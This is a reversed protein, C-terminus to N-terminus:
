RSHSLLLAKTMAIPDEAKTIAAIMAVGNVGTTLVKSLRDLNIGGIAVVPYPLTEVWYKLAELGRPEFPMAKTTTAYIPGYAIYSPSWQCAYDMEQKNHTSIGLRLGAKAIEAVSAQQLDEQGLHVGYAQHRIALEWYDNIFLRAGFRNAIEVSQAVADELATESANKIRLQITQVGIPLLKEVWNVSDVIPYLGLPKPGCDPFKITKILM